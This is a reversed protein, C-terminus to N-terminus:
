SIEISKKEREVRLIEGQLWNQALFEDHLRQFKLIRVKQDPIKKGQPIPIRKDIKYFRSIRTLANALPNCYPGTILM